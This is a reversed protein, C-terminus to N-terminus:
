IRVPSRLQQYGISRGASDREDLRGEVSSCQRRRRRRDTRLPRRQFLGEVRHRHAGITTKGAGAPGTLIVIPRPVEPHGTLRSDADVPLVSARRSGADRPVQGTGATPGHAGGRAEGGRGRGCRYTVQRGRRHETTPSTSPQSGGETQRSPWSTIAPSPWIARSCRPGSRVWHSHTAATWRCRDSALLPWPAFVVARDGPRGVSGRRSWSRRTGAADGATGPRDVTWEVDRSSGGSTRPRAWM